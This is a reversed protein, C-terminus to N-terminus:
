THICVYVNNVNYMCVYVYTREGEENWKYEDYEKSKQIWKPENKNIMTFMSKWEYICTMFVHLYRNICDNTYIYIYTYIYFMSKWENICLSVQKYM